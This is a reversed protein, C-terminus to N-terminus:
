QHDKISYRDHSELPCQHFVIKFFPSDDATAPGNYASKANNPRVEVCFASRPCLMTDIIWGTKEEFVLHCAVGTLSPPSRESFVGAM